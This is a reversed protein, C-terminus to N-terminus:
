YNYIITIHSQQEEQKTQPPKTSVNDREKELSAQEQYFFLNKQAVEL